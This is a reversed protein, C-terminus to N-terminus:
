KRAPLVGIHDRSGGTLPSPCNFVVANSFAHDILVDPEELVKSATLEVSIGYMCPDRCLTEASLRYIM